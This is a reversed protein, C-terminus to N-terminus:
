REFLPSPTEWQGQFISEAAPRRKGPAEERARLDDPLTAPDGLYGIAMAAAPEATAPIQFLERAKAVDFGAMQHVYLGLATAQATLQASAAGTDHMAHRNPKGGQWELMAVSLALVPASRAWSQNKPVLVSLLRDFEARNSKPAVLYRWPQENGSSAAWRAAEFLSRLKEPEVPTDAFARPSYRRALLEHIPADTPHPPRM